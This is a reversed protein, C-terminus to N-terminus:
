ANIIQLVNVEDLLNIDQLDNVGLIERILDAKGAEIEVKPIM